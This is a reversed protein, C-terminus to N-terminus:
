AKKYKELVAITKEPLPIKRRGAETKPPEFIIGKKQTSQLNQRVFLTKNEMDIDRWRIGLLEGRRMGTTIALILVAYYRNDKAVTMLLDIEDETFIEMEDKIIKPPKVLQAVNSTIHQNVIAQKLASVLVSHYKQISAAKYGEERLDNYRM